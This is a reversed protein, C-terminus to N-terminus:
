GRNEILQNLAQVYESLPIQKQTLVEDHFLSKKHYVKTVWTELDLEAKFEENFFLLKGKHSISNWDSEGFLQAITQGAMAALKSLQDADLQGDGSAVRNLALRPFKAGPFLHAAVENYDLAADSVIQKVDITKM